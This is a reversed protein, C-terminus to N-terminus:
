KKRRLYAALLSATKRLTSLAYHRLRNRVLYYWLNWRSRKGEVIGVIDFLSIPPDCYANNDGKTVAVFNKKWVLRHAIFSEGRRFVVVDGSRPDGGKTIKILEGPRISPLMSTSHGQLHIDDPGEIFESVIFRSDKGM